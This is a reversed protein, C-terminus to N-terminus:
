FGVTQNEPGNVEGV